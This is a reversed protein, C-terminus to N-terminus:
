TPRTRRSATPPSQLVVRVTSKGRHLVARQRKVGTVIPVTTEGLKSAETAIMAISPPKQFRAPCAVCIKGMVLCATKLWTTPTRGMSDSAPMDLRTTCNPPPELTKLHVLHIMQIRQIRQIRKKVCPITRAIRIVAISCVMGITTQRMGVNGQKEACHTASAIPIKATSCVMGITTQRMGVNARKEWMVPLAQVMMRLSRWVREPQMAVM